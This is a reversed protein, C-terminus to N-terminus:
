KQQKRQRALGERILKVVLNSLTRADAKAVGEGGEARRRGPDYSNKDDTWIERLHINIM